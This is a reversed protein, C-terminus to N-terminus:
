RNGACAPIIGILDVSCSQLAVTGRVRPSSGVTVSDRNRPFSQEGCVRPHDRQINSYRIGMHRNGACAPIIGRYHKHQSITHATGRVRPSSGPFTLISDKKITQEGCVRPHDRDADVGQGSFHRNGACAPIIGVLLKGTAHRLETGRVRPSSGKDSSMQPM